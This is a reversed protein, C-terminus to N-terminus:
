HRATPSRLGSLNELKELYSFKKTPASLLMHKSMVNTTQHESKVYTETNDTSFLNDNNDSEEADWGMFDSLTKSNPTDSMDEGELKPSDPVPEKNQALSDAYLVDDIRSMVTHALSEIIRSYSELIAQGVDRNYQIKSIDLTSQSIGPFRQKLLLLITEAREEFLERKELSVASGWSSKSDKHHMKRKWIVISAEIRNKLDLVAHENSLDMTALFQEPDFHEVTISKYISDGLSARGNKPLSEIYSEPIEMESLVQANIAMAAKLVQNVSEKQSQIWRRGEESLGNEPVKVTPIWWKDEHRTVNKESDDSKGSPYWFENQYGFNDLSEILMADLKRLAPIDMHLDNRQRTVMIEMSVGEKSKQQSPVFEVIHDTVSLLWNIEKRWRAKREPPMPELKRQEGFISAALNTIANSLALASSVGKGGGSMDEGLLLKAFREKMLEMDSPQRDRPSPLPLPPAEHRDRPSPLLCYPPGDVSDIRRSVPGRERSLAFSLRQAELSREGGAPKSDQSAPLTKDDASGGDNGSEFTVSHVQRGPIECMKKLKFSRSKEISHGRDLARVM